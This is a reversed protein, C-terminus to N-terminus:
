SLNFDPQRSHPLAHHLVTLPIQSLACAHGHQHHSSKSVRSSWLDSLSLWTSLFSQCWSPEQVDRRLYSIGPGRAIRRTELKREDLSQVLAVAVEIASWIWTPKTKAAISGSVMNKNARRRQWFSEDISIHKLSPGGFVTSSHNWMHIHAFVMIWVICQNLAENRVVGYGANSEKKAIAHSWDANLMVHLHFVVPWSRIHELNTGSGVSVRRRYCRNCREGGGRGSETVGFECCVGDETELDVPTM